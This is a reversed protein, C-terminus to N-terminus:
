WRDVVQFCWECVVERWMLHPADDSIKSGLCGSSPRSRVKYAAERGVLANWEGVSQDLASPCIM